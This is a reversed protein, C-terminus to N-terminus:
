LVTDSDVFKISHYIVAILNPIIFVTNWVSRNRIDEAAEIVSGSPTDEGSVWTLEGQLELMSEYFNIM